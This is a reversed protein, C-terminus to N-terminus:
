RRVATWTGTRGNFDATVAGGMRDAGTVAGTYLTVGSILLRITLDAGTRSILFYRSAMYGSSPASTEGNVSCQLTGNTDAQAVVGQVNTDPVLHISATDTLIAVTFEGDCPNDATIQGPVPTTNESFHWTGTLSVASPDFNDSGCSWCAVCILLIIFRM